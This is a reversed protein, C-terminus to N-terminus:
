NKEVKAAVIMNTLKKMELSLFLLIIIFLLVDAFGGAMFIGDLDFFIPLILIGGLYFVIQKLFFLIGSEMPKGVSQFYGSGIVNFGLFTMGISFLLMGKRTIEMFETDGDSFLAVLSDPNFVVILFVIFSLITSAILSKKLVEKVRDYSKYGYNFGIIPQVGQSIGINIFMVSMYISNIVGMAGIAIEGGYKKLQINAVIAAMSVGIQLIFAPFGIKFIRKIIPLSPMMYKLRLTLLRKPSKTFYYFTMCAATFTSLKTALAAGTVGWKFIIVFFYDLIINMFASVLMVRMAYKPQGEARILGNVGMAFFQFLIFFYIIRMYESAIPILAPTAGIAYLIEDMFTYGVFMILINLVNYIFAANGLIKEATEKDGEGLSLSVLSASGIGILMGMSIIITFIPLTISVASIALSGLEQGIFMRDVINYLAFALQGLIAPISYRLILKGIKEEALDNKM